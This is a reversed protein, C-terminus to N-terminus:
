LHLEQDILDDLQLDMNMSELLRNALLFSETIIQLQNGRNGPNTQHISPADQGLNAINGAKRGVFLKDAVAPQNRAARVTTSATSVGGTAFIAILVQPQGETLGSDAGVGMVLRDLLKVPLDLAAAAPM